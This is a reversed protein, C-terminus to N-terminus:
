EHVEVDNVVEEEVLVRGSGELVGRQSDGGARVVLRESCKSVSAKLM